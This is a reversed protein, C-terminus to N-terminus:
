PCPGQKYYQYALALTAAGSWMCEAHGNGYGTLSDYCENIAETKGIADLIDVAAQDAEKELGSQQLAGVMWYCVHPWSRGIWYAQQSLAGPFDPNAFLGGGSRFAPHSRDLSPFPFTTYFRDHNLLYKRCITKALKPPTIGAYLPMFSAPTTMGTFRGDAVSRDQYVGEDPNFLSKHILRGLAAARKRWELEEASRGLQAAIRALALCELYLHTNTDVSEFLDLQLKGWKKREWREGSRFALPFADQWRLSDDWCTGGDPYEALGNHNKDCDMLWHRVYRSLAPYVRRLLRQDPHLRTLHAVGWALIPQQYGHRVRGSISYVPPVGDPRIGDALLECMGGATETDSALGLGLLSFAGDWFWTAAGGSKMAHCTPSRKGSPAHDMYRLTRLMGVAKLALPEFHRFAPPLPPLRAYAVETEQISKVLAKDLAPGASATRLPPKRNVDFEVVFGFRAEGQSPITQAIWNSVVAGERRREFRLQRVDTTLRAFVQYDAVGKQPVDVVFGNGGTEVRATTASPTARWRAKVEVKTASTNRLRYAIVLRDTAAYFMQCVGEVPPLPTVGNLYFIEEVHSRYYNMTNYIQAMKSREPALGPFALELGLLKDFVRRGDDEHVVFCEDPGPATRPSKLISFRSCRDRFSFDSVFEDDMTEHVPHRCFRVLNRTKWSLPYTRMDM